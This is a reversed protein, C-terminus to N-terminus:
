NNLSLKLKKTFKRTLEDELFCISTLQDNFDPEYFYSVEVNQQLFTNLIKQLKEESDIALSILYNNCWKKGLEPYDLFYQSISHGCQAM